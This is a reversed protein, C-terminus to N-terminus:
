VPRCIMYHQIATEPDNLSEVEWGTGEVLKLANERSYIAWKLPQEPDWDKFDPPGPWNAVQEDSLELNQSIHDMFGMGGETTEFVFLSYLLKGGPKVYRRLMQLMSVYDHPALHTFVSFLCVIDFSGEEVPLQTNGTLREGEPNYMDNHLDLSHFEFRPDSVNQQLFEIQEPFVDVGAYHGVPLENGLFAQVLKVGCGMDLVRQSGLDDLGFNRCMLNILDVGSSVSDDEDNAKGGRRFERPVNLIQGAM